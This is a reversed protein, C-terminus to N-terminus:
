GECWDRQSFRMGGNLLGDALAMMQDNTAPLDFISSESVHGQGNVRDVQVRISRAPEVVKEGVVGDRNLDLGTLTEWTSMRVWNRQLIMWTAGTALIGVILALMWPERWRAWLGLVLAAIGLFLGTGAAQLFQVKVTEARHLYERQTIPPSAVTDSSFMKM